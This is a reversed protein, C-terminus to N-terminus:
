ARLLHSLRGEQRAKVIEAPTMQDLDKETIQAVAEAPDAGNGPVPLTSPLAKTEPPKTTAIAAFAKAAEAIEEPTEGSLFRAAEKPLGYETLADRVALERRMTALEKEASEARKALKEAESMQAEEYQALKARAEELESALTHAKDKYSKAEERVNAVLRAVREPDLDGDWKPAAPTEPSQAPEAAQPAPSPDSNPEVAM